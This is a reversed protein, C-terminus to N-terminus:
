AMYKYLLEGIVRSVTVPLSRFLHNHVGHILSRSEVYAERRFDFHYYRIEGEQTGWGAKFNRLGMNEQDTKGFCFSEFGNEAYWRIANWIVLNTGCLAKFRRDSAGYKYVAKGNFHLFVGGAVPQGQYTGIAVMGIKRREIERALKRFFRWPQPPLGHERRTLCNLKYFNAMAEQNSSLEVTVGEKEAKKISGRTGDRLTSRLRQVNRDLSLMHSFHLTSAPINNFTCDMCRLEFTRWGNQMGASLMMEEVSELSIEPDFLPDCYDTFPLSVARCGSIARPVEMVPIASRLAGNKRQALYIPKYGYTEVLLRAWSSTHFVSARPHSSVFEDWGSDALPNVIDFEM